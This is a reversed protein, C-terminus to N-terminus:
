NFASFNCILILLLYPHKSSTAGLYTAPLSGVKCGMLGALAELISPSTCVGIIKCKFINVKLGSIAEFCLFIAIINLVEEEKLKCFIVADDAFQVHHIPPVANAPVFGTVLNAEGAAKIM